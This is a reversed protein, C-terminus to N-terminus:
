NFRKELKNVDEREQYNKESEIPSTGKRNGRVQTPITKEPPHWGKGQIRGKKLHWSRKKSQGTTFASGERTTPFEMEWSPFGVAGGNLSRGKRKQFVVGETKNDVTTKPGNVKRGKRVLRL